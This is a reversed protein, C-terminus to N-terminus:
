AHWRAWETTLSQLQTYPLGANILSCSFSPVLLSIIPFMGSSWSAVQLSTTTPYTPIAAGSNRAAVGNTICTAICHILKSFIALHKITFSITLNVLRFSRRSNLSPRRTSTTGSGWQKTKSCLLRRLCKSREGTKQAVLSSAVGGQVRRHCQLRGLEWWGPTLYAM